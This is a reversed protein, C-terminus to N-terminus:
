QVAGIEILRELVRPDAAGTVELGELAEFTRIAAKTREGPIGDASLEAVQASTLGAQIRRM